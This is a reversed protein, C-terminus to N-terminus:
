NYESRPVPCKPFPLYAPQSCKINLRKWVGDTKSYEYRATDCYKASERSVRETWKKSRSSHKLTWLMGSVVSQGNLDDAFDCSKTMIQHIKVNNTTKHCRGRSRHVKIFAHCFDHTGPSTKSISLRSFFSRFFMLSSLSPWRNFRSSFINNIRLFYSWLIVRPWSFSMFCHFFSSSLSFHNSCLRLILSSYYRCCTASCIM